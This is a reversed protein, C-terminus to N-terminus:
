EDFHHFDIRLGYLQVERQAAEEPPTALHLARDPHVLIEELTRIEFLFLPQVREKLQRLVIELRTQEIARLLQERLKFIRHMGLRRELAQELYVLLFLVPLLRYVGSSLELRMGPVRMLLLDRIKVALERAVFDNMGPGLRGTRVQGLRERVMAKRNAGIQQEAIEFRAQAIGLFRDLCPLADLALVRVIEREDGFFQENREHCQLPELLPEIQQATIERLIRREIEEIRHKLAGQFFLSGFDRVPQHAVLQSAIGRQEAEVLEKFRLQELRRELTPAVEFKDLFQDVLMRAPEGHVLAVITTEARTLEVPM